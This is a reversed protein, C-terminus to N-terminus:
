IHCVKSLLFFHLCKKFCLCVYKESSLMRQHRAQLSEVLESIVEAIAPGRGAAHAKYKDSNNDDDENEVRTFCIYLLMCKHYCQQAGAHRYLREIVNYQIEDRWM